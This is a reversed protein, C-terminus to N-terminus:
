RHCFGRERAVQWWEEDNQRYDSTKGTQAVSAGYRNAVSVCEFVDYGYKKKYFHIFDERLDDSLEDSILIKMFPTIEDKSASIWERDKRNIHEETSGLKEFERNSELVTKQLLCIKSYKQLEEIKLYINQEIRNLIEEALFMSSNGVSEKLSKQSISVSYYALAVLVLLVLMFGATLKTGITIRM